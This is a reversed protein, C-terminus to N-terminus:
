TIEVTEIQDGEDFETNSPPRRQVPIRPPIEVGDDDDDDPTRNRSIGVISGSAADELWSSVGREQVITWVKLAGVCVFFITLYVWLYVINQTGSEFVEDFLGMGIRIQLLGFILMTVGLSRHLLFWADRPSEPPRFDWNGRRIPTGDDKREVPPRLFGNVIQFASALLLIGGFWHHPHSFHHSHSRASVAVVAVLIAILTFMFTLLNFAVHFYIWTSPVLKRFWAVAIASPMMFGWGLTAMIAHFKLAGKATNDGSSHYETNSDYCTSLDIQFSARHRHYGFVNGNGIAFSFTNLGTRRIVPENIGDNFAKTFRFVTLQPQQKITSELLTQDSVPLIENVKDSSINYKLQPEPATAPLGVVAVSIMIM